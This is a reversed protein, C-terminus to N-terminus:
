EYREGHHDIWGGSKGGPDHHTWHLVGGKQNWEYEGRMRVRDGVILPVKPALDINHAVLVTLTEDLRVIFRQHRSGDLDDPLLKSVKGEVELWVDSQHAHYAARPEALGSGAAQTPTKELASGPDAVWFGLLALLAVLLSSATTKSKM